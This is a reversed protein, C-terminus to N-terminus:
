PRALPPHWGGNVVTPTTCLVFRITETSDHHNNYEEAVWAGATIWAYPSDQGRARFNEVLLKWRRELSMRESKNM